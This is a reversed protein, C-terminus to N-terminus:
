KTSLDESKEATIYLPRNQVQSYVRAIYEGILGLMLFQGGILFHIWTVMMAMGSIEAGAFLFRCVIVLTVILSVSCLLMGSLIGIRLPLCSFGIAVDLALMALKFFNYKTEGAYREDRDYYVAVQKFGTWAILGRVFRSHERCQKFADVVCKDILRFDGTDVPIDVASLRRITRYFLWSAFKKGIPEGKRSRRRAYVIEHGEKWKAILEPIVEPPDQLDADIIVVADGSAHDLGATTAQEHGFHRSLLIYKVNDNAEALRRIIKRSGDSSGDDIFIYEFTDEASADIGSLRAFLTELCGAEDLAPIVVSILAM